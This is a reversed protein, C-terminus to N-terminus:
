VVTVAFECRRGVICGRTHARASSGAGERAYVSAQSNEQRYDEVGGIDGHHPVLRRSSDAGSSRAGFVSLASIVLEYQM